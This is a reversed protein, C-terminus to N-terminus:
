PRAEVPLSLPMHFLSLRPRLSSVPPRAPLFGPSSSSFYDEKEGTAKRCFDKGRWKLLFRRALHNPLATLKDFFTCLVVQLILDPSIYPAFTMGTEVPFYFACRIVLGM